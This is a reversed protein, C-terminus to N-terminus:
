VSLFCVCDKTFLTPFAGPLWNLIHSLPLTAKGTEKKQCTYPTATTKPIRRFGPTAVKCLGACPPHRSLPANLVVVCHSAGRTCPGTPVTATPRTSLWLRRQPHPHNLPTLCPAPNACAPLSPSDQLEHNCLDPPIFFFNYTIWKPSLLSRFISSDKHNM